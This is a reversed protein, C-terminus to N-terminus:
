LPKAECLIIGESSSVMVTFDDEIASGIGMISHEASCAVQWFSKVTVVVRHCIPIAYAKPQRRLLSRNHDGFPM